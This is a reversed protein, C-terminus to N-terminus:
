KINSLLTKRPHTFAIKWLKILATEIPQDREAKITFKLVISDIKPPPDFSLKGVYRVREIDDCAQEM